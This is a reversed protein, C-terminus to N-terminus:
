RKEEMKKLILQLFAHCIDIRTIIGIMKNDKVVPLRGANYKFSLNAAKLLPTDEEVTILPRSILDKATLRKFDDTLSVEKSIKFLSDELSGMDEVKELDSLIDFYGPLLASMLDSSSVVGLVAGGDDIVPVEFLDTDLFLRSLDLISSDKHVTAVKRKMLDKVIV